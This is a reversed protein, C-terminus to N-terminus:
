WLVQCEPFITQPVPSHTCPNLLAERKRAAPKGLGQAGPGAQKEVSSPHSTQETLLDRNRVRRRSTGACLKVTWINATAQALDAYEKLRWAPPSAIPVHLYLDKQATPGRLLARLWAPLPAEAPDPPIGGQSHTWADEQVRAWLVRLGPSGTRTGYSLETPKCIKLCLAHLQTVSHLAELQM